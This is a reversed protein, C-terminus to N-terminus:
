KFNENILCDFINGDQSSNPLGFKLSFKITTQSLNYSTKQSSIDGTGALNLQNEASSQINTQQLLFDSKVPSDIGQGATLNEQEQESLERFLERHFFKIYESM